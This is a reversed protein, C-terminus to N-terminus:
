PKKKMTVVPRLIAKGDKITVDLRVDADQYKEALRPLTDKVQRAVTEFRLDSTEGTQKRAAIYRDYLQRMAPDDGGPAPASPRPPISPQPPRATVVPSSATLPQAPRTAGPPPASPAGPVVSRPLPMSSAAPRPLVLPQPKAVTEPAAPRQPAALRPAPPAGLPPTATPTQPAPPRLSLPATAPPMAAPRAVPQLSPVQGPPRPVFAGQAAIPQAPAVPQINPGPAVSAARQPPPTIARPPISVEESERPFPRAVSPENVDDLRPAAARQRVAAPADFGTPQAAVPQPAEPEPEPELEELEDADLEQPGGGEEARRVAATGAGMRQARVVDRRFTGEEIQRTIRNWYTQYSTFRQVLTQFRFRLGTNRMQERHLSQFRRDVDKRAVFPLMKEIGTFYQDYKIRLRELRTELEELERQIEAPTV